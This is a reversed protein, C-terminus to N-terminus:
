RGSCCRRRPPVDHGPVEEVSEVQVLFTDLVVETGPLHCLLSLICSSLSVIFVVVVFAVVVFAVVVFPVVVFAVVVFAVVVFAVVVFAVIVFSEDLSACRGSHLLILAWHLVPHRNFLPCRVFFSELCEVLIKSM